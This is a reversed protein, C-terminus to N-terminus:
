DPLMIDPFHLVSMCKGDETLFHKVKWFLYPQFFLMMELHVQHDTTALIVVKPNHRKAEAMAKVFPPGDGGVNSCIVMNYQATTMGARVWCQEPFRQTLDELRQGEDTGTMSIVESFYRVTDLAAPACWMDLVSEFENMYFLSLAYDYVTRRISRPAEPIEM